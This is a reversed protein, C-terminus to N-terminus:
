EGICSPPVPTLQYPFGQIGYQPADGDLSFYSRNELLPFRAGFTENFIVRFTNVPTHQPDIAQASLGPLYLANLIRMRYEPRPDWAHDSQLIIIPPTTEAALLSRIIELMRRNLYTVEDPYAPIEGSRTDYDVFNGDADFVFPAHPAILHFYVFKKGPIRPVRELQQLAFATREYHSQNVTRIPQGRAANWRYLLEVAPRLATTRLFLNEFNSVEYPEGYQVLPNDNGVIYFEADEIDLWWYGTEFTVMQYGRAALFRRVQSDGLYTDMPITDIRNADSGLPIAYGPADLYEMNLAAFMSFPTVGYNSQTCEPLFFGLSRLENTFPSIDLGYVEQMVDARAYADLVIYYINPSPDGAPGAATAGGPDLHASVPNQQVYRWAFSGIQLLPFFVLVAAAANLAQHVPLPASNARVRAARLLVLSGLLALGLWLPFLFRHKGVVMGFLAAGELLEYVHGYTYFLILWLSALPAAREWSRLALRLAGWVLLCVALAALGSRLAAAPRMQDLNEALLALLPFIGFLLPHYIRTRRNL